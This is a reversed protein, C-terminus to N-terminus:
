ECEDIGLVVTQPPVGGVTVVLKYAQVGPRLEESGMLKGQSSVAIGEIRQGLRVARYDIDIAIRGNADTEGRFLAKGDVERFM